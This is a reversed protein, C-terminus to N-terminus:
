GIAYLISYFLAFIAGPPDFADSVSHEDVSEIERAQNVVRAFKGSVHCNVNPKHMAPEGQM